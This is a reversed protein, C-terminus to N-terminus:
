DVRVLILEADETILHMSHKSMAKILIMTDDFRSNTMIISKGDAPMIWNFTVVQGDRIQYGSGDKAFSIHWGVPDGYDQWVRDSYYSTNKKQTFKWEGIIKKKYKQPSITKENPFVSDDNSKKFIYSSTDIEGFSTDIYTCILETDTLKTIEFLLVSFDGLSDQKYVKNKSTKVIITDNDDVDMDFHNGIMKSKDFFYLFYNDREYDLAPTMEGNYIEGVYSWEGNLKKYTNNCSVLIISTIIIFLLSKKTRM